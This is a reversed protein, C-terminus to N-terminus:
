IRSHKSFMKEYHAVPEFIGGSREYFDKNLRFMGDSPDEWGPAHQKMQQWRCYNADGNTEMLGMGMGPFPALRAALNKHWNVLLPNVTLDSCMCPVNREHALRAVPLSMSLTKAIGKLVLAGYGQELRAQADQENHISDDAAVRVGVDGVYETNTESLPEEYLLVQDFAGIKRAHDLYRLLTEKKKYRANADMTYLLQSSATHPTRLDKLAAHIATLREMDLRLMEEQSGPHGTKIKFVFFGEHAARVIDAVPMNYSVQYLIAISQNRHQLAPKFVAPLMDDFSSFGNEAAYLLWAANDVSVLANLIFNDNVTCGALQTAAEKVAPLIAHLLDVPTHFPTKKVLELARNCLAYMLANGGAEPQAAFFDADGYLVSQTALGTGSVGSAAQLHAAVQWLETLYNGKFGFPRVLPEREFNSSTATVHIKKLM